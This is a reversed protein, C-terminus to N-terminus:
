FSYKQVLRITFRMIIITQKFREVYLWQTQTIYLTKVRKQQKERHLPSVAVQRNLEGCSSSDKGLINGPFSNVRSACHRFSRPVLAHKTLQRGTERRSSVFYYNDIKKKRENASLRCPTRATTRSRRPSPSSRPKCARPRLTAKRLRVLSYRGWCPRAIPSACVAYYLAYMIICCCM